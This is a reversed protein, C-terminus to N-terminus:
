GILKEYLSLGTGLYHRPVAPDSEDHFQKIGCFVFGCQQYYENLRRNDRGTDLRIYQKGATKGFENAWATIGKVYGKGRFAPNTVIRHLYLSPELDRDDWILPDSYLMSFFCAIQGDEVVKWHLKNEIEKVILPKNMGQWVHGTSRSRQFAIAQDFLKELVDLDDATTNVITM